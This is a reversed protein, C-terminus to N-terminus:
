PAVVAAGGRRARLATGILTLFERSTGPALVWASPVFTLAGLAIEAALRVGAPLSAAFAREFLAVAVVMPVCAVMPPALAAVQARLPLGDTVKFIAMYGLANLAFAIGV